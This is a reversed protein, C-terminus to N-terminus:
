WIMGHELHEEVMEENLPTNYNFSEASDDFGYLGELDSSVKKRFNSISNRKLLRLKKRLM